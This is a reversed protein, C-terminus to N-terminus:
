PTDNRTTRVGITGVRGPISGVAQFSHAVRFIPAHASARALEVAGELDGANGSFIPARRALLM